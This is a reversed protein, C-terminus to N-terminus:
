ARKLAEELAYGIAALRGVLVDFDDGRNYAAIVARAENRIIEIENM